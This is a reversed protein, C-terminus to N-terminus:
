HVGWIVGGGGDSPLGLSVFVLLGSGGLCVVSFPLCGGGFFWLVSCALQPLTSSGVGECPNLCLWVDCRRVSKRCYGLFSSLINECGLKPELSSSVVYLLVFDQRGSMMVWVRLLSGSAVLCFVVLNGSIVLDIDPSCAYSLQRLAPRSAKL